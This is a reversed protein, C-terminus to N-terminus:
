CCLGIRRYGLSLWSFPACLLLNDLLTTTSTSASFISYYYFSAAVDTPPGSTLVARTSFRPHQKPRGRNSPHLFLHVMLSFSRRCFLLLIFWIWAGLKQFSRFPHRSLCPLPISPGFRLALWTESRKAYWQTDAYLKCINFLSGPPHRKKINEKSKGVGTKHQQRGWLLATKM